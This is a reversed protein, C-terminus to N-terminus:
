RRVEMPGREIAEITQRVIQTGEANQPDGVKQWVGDVCQYLDM